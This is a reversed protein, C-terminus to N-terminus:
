DHLFEKADPAKRYHQALYKQMILDTRASRPSPGNDWTLQPLWQKDIWTEFTFTHIKGDGPLKIQTLPIHDNRTRSKFLRIGLLFPEDQDHPMLEVWPHKQNHGSVEITIQYRLSTGVGGGLQDSSLTAARYLVDFDPHLERSYLELDGTGRKNIHGSFRRPSLDPPSSMETALALSEEAADLMLQLLFDSMVLRDGINDFGGEIEDKPFSRFPDSSTNEVRGNGNNDVLKSVNGVRLEPDNIYLLDRITNRLEFRNLRRAVTQSGTSRHQAYAEKLQATLINIVRTLENAEPPPQDEPPMNGSNLQDLIEQWGQITPIDSLKTSLSDFRKNNEQKKAGHCENCHKQLFPQVKSLPVAAQISSLSVLTVTLALIFRPM